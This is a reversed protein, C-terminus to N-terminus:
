LRKQRLLQLLVFPEDNTTTVRPLVDDDTIYFSPHRGPINLFVYSTLPCHLFFIFIFCPKLFFFLRNSSTCDDQLVLASECITRIRRFFHFTDYHVHSLSRLRQTLFSRAAHKLRTHYFLVYLLEPVFHGLIM